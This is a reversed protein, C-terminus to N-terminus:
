QMKGVSLANERWYSYSIVLYRKLIYRGGQLDPFAVGESVLLDSIFIKLQFYSM